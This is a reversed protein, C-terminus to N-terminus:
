LEWDCLTIIRTDPENLATFAVKVEFGLPIHSALNSTTKLTLESSDIDIKAVSVADFSFYNGVTSELRDSL